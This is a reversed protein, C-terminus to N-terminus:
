AKNIGMVRVPLPSLTLKALNFIYRVGSEIFTSMGVKVYNLGYSEILKMCLATRSKNHSSVSLVPHRTLFISSM